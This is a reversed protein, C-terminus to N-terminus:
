YVVIWNDKREVYVLFCMLVFSVWCVKADKTSGLLDKLATADFIMKTSSIQSAAM